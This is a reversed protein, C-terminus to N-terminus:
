PAATANYDEAFSTVGPVGTVDISLRVVVVIPQDSTIEVAGGYPTIGFNGAGDLAGAMQPNTNRKVFPALPNSATAVNHTGVNTGNADYYRAVINTANTAGVNMIAIWARKEAYSNAAWRIYPAAVKTAGQSGGVYATALGSIDSWVKGIAIIPAGTSTIKASGYYGSGTGDACPNVSLKGGSPINRAPTTRVLTGSTNYYEVVVSATETLSTNQIAFYTTEQDSYANCMASPMYFTSAGASAGEFAYAQPTSDFTEEAAAVLSGGPASVVLSGSFGDSLGGIDTASFVYSAGGLISQNMDVVPTTSGVAYFKLNATVPSSGVNQIGVRTTSGSARRLVTPIYFTSGAESSSFASYLLHGFQGSTAFQVYTAVIPVDASLVASGAFGSPIPPTISADGIYLSGAQHPNLPRNATYTSAGNYYTFNLGTTSPTTSPTYYTISSSWTAGTAGDSPASVRKVRTPTRTAGKLPAVPTSGVKPQVGPKTPTATLTPPKTGVRTPLAVTPPKGQALVDASTTNIGGIVIVALVLIGALVFLKILNAKM